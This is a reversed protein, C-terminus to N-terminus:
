KQTDKQNDKKNEEIDTVKKANAKVVLVIGLIIWFIPGGPSHGASIAGIASLIGIVISITGFKKM